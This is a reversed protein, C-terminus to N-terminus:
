VTLCSPLGSVLAIAIVVLHHPMVEVVSALFMATKDVVCCTCVYIHMPVYYLHVPLSMYHMIMTTVQMLLLLQLRQM